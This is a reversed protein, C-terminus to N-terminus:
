LAHIGSSDKPLAVRYIIDDITEVTAEYTNLLKKKGKEPYHCPTCSNEMLPVIHDAYSVKSDLQYEPM